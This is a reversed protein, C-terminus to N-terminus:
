INEKRLDDKIIENLYDLAEKILENKWNRNSFDVSYERCQTTDIEFFGENDKYCPFLASCQGEENVYYNYDIAYGLESEVLGVWVDEDETLEEKTPYYIKTEDNLVNMIQRRIVRCIIEVLERKKEALKFENLPSIDGNQIGFRDQAELFVENIKEELITLIYTEM